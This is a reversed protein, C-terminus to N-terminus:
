KGFGTWTLKRNNVLGQIYEVKVVSETGVMMNRSNLICNAIDLVNTIEPRSIGFLSKPLYSELTHNELPSRSFSTCPVSIATTIMLEKVSSM